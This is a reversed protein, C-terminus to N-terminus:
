SNVQVVEGPREYLPRLLLGNVVSFMGINVGIGLALTMVATLAFGPSRRLTRLSVRADQLLDDLWAWGWADRAEDRLRLTNGFARPDDLLARHAEMERRLEDEIARRRALYVLRRMWEGIIAM